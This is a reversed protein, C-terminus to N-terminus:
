SLHWFLPPFRTLRLRVHMMSLALGLIGLDGATRIVVDLTTQYAAPNSGALGALM